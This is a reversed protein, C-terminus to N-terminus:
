MSPAPPPPRSILIKLSDVDIAYKEVGDPVIIEPTLTYEGPQKGSMDVLVSVDRSSLTDLLAKPGELTVSVTNPIVETVLDGADVLVTPPVNALVRSARTGISINVLVRDPNCLLVSPDYEIEVDRVVSERLRALDIPRTQLKDLPRVASEAGRVQIWGPEAAPVRTLLLNEPLSGSLVVAVRVVKTIVNEVLLDIATPSIIRIDAPEIGPPLLVDSVGLRYTFRGPAARSLNVIVNMKKFGMFMLERRTGSVSVQVADPVRGTLTVTDAVNAFSLSATFERKIEQQGSANFWIVLAVVVAILKVGINEILGRTFSILKM